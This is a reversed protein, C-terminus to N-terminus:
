EPDKSSWRIVAKDLDEENLPSKTATSANYSWRLFKETLLTNEKKLEAIKEDRDKVKGEEKLLAKSKKRGGETEHGQTEKVKENYANKIDEHNYFKRYQDARYKSQTIVNVMAVVDPWTIKKNPDSPDTWIKIAEVILKEQEPTIHKGM